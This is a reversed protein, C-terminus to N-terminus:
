KRRVVFPRWFQKPQNRQTPYIKCSYYTDTSPYLHRQFQRHNWSWLMLWMASYKLCLLIEYLAYSSKWYQSFYRQPVQRSKPSHLWVVILLDKLELVKKADIMIINADILTLHPLYLFDMRTETWLELVGTNQSMSGM